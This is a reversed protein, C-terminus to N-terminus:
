TEIARQNDANEDMVVRFLESSTSSNDVTQQPWAFDWGNDTSRLAEIGLSGLDPLRSRMEEQISGYGGESKLRSVQAVYRPWYWRREAAVWVAKGTKM